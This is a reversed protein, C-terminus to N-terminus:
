QLRRTTSPFTKEWQFRMAPFGSIFEPITRAGLNLGQHAPSVVTWRVLEVVPQNAVCRTSICHPLLVSKKKSSFCCELQSNPPACSFWLPQSNIIMQMLMKVIAIHLSVSNTIQILRIASEGRTKRANTISGKGGTSSNDMTVRPLHQANM